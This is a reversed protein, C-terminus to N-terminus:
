AQLITARGRRHARECISEMAGTHEPESCFPDYRLINITVGAAFTEVVQWKASTRVELHTRATPYLWLGYASGCTVFFFHRSVSIEFAARLFRGAAGGGAAMAARAQRRRVADKHMVIIGLIVENMNTAASPAV